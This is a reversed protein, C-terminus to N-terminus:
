TEDYPEELPIYSELKFRPTCVCLFILSSEGTNTIRQPTNQGIDVIDGPSVTFTEGGVDMLGEGQEIIYREHVTLHHLETTVSPEVRCRALSADGIEPVNMLETIYCRERTLVEPTQTQRYRPPGADPM